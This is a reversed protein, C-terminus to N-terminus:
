LGVFRRSTTAFAILLQKYVHLKNYYLMLKVQHTRNPLHTCVWRVVDPIPAVMSLSASAPMITVVGCSYLQM